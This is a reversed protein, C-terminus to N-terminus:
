WKFTCYGGSFVGSVSSSLQKWIIEPYIVLIQANGASAMTVFDINNAHLLHFEERAHLLVVLLIQVSGGNNSEELLDGFDDADGTSAFLLLIWKYKNPASKVVMFGRTDILM